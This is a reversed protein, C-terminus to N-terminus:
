TTYNLKEFQIGIADMIIRADEIDMDNLEEITLPKNNIKTCNCTFIQQFYMAKEEESIDMMSIRLQTIAIHRYKLVEISYHNGNSLKGSTFEINDM